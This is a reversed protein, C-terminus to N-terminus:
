DFDFMTIPSYSQIEPETEVYHHDIVAVIARCQRPYSDDNLLRLSAILTGGSAIGDDVLIYSGDITDNLSDYLHLSKIQNNYGRTYEEEETTGLKSDKTLVVLPSEFMAALPLAKAEPACVIYSESDTNRNELEARVTRVWGRIMESLDPQAYIHWLNLISRGNVDITPILDSKLLQDRYYLYGTVNSADLDVIPVDPDESRVVEDSEVIIKISNLLEVFSKILPRTLAQGSCTRSGSSYFLGSKVLDMMVVSGRPITHPNPTESDIVVSNTLTRGRYRFLFNSRYIDTMDDSNITSDIRMKGNRVKQIVCGMIMMHVFDYVLLSLLSNNLFIENILRRREWEDLDPYSSEVNQAIHHKFRAYFSNPFVDLRVQLFLQLLNKISIISPSYNVTNRGLVPVWRFRNSYFSRRLESMLSNRIDYFVREEGDFSEIPTRPNHGVFVVYFWRRIVNDTLALLDVKKPFSSRVAQEFMQNLLAIPDGQESNMLDMISSKVSKHIIQWEVSSSDVSDITNRLGHSSSFNRNLYTLNPNSGLVSRIHRQNSIVYFRFFGLSVYYDGNQEFQAFYDVAKRFSFFYIM